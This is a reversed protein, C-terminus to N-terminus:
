KAVGTTYSSIKRDNVVFPDLSQSHNLSIQIFHKSTGKNGAINVSHPKENNEV